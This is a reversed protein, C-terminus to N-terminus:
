DALRQERGRPQVLALGALLVAGALWVLPTFREGLLAMAWLLGSATVIYATQTAFVAGAAGALYVYGAYMLCHVVSSATLALEPKQLPWPPTIWQGTALVLPLVLVAGVASALFMAQVPDLGATGWKAVVNGEIAYFLPGILAIPLWAAALGQPLGAQPLAIMAVGCLGLALGALRRLSLREMGLALALPFAMMPVTSIIISMVGAPLHAVSLYFTSNPILTGILAILAAFRLTVPTLPVRRRRLILIAGLVAAGIALQWFILGFHGYGTSVAIKGLSQTSGWGIGIILLLATFGLRRRPTM